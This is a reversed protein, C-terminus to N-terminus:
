YEGDDLDRLVPFIGRKQPLDAKEVDRVLGRLQHRQLCFDTPLAEIYGGAGALFPDM